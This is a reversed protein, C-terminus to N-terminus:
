VHPIPTFLHRPINFAIHLTAYYQCLLSLPSYDTSGIPAIMRLAAEKQVTLTLPIHLPLLKELLPTTIQYPINAICRDVQPLDITLIDGEILHLHPHNWLQLDSIFRSDLEVATVHAGNSLLARTLAGPGPGVELIRDGEKTGGTLVIKKLLNPDKLYNQSLRKNARQFNLPPLPLHSM